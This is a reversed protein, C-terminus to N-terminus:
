ETSGVARQPLADARASLTLEQQWLMEVVRDIGQTLHRRYTSFPIGLLGAAAEQTRHRNAYTAKLAQCPKTQRPDHQLNELTELVLHRLQEEYTGTWNAREAVLRTTFLPNDRLDSHLDRLAVRVAAAFTRKNRGGRLIAEEHHCRPGAAPGRRSVGVPWTSM